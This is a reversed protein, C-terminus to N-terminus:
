IRVTSAAKGGRGCAGSLMKKKNLSAPDMGRESMESAREKALAAKRVVEVGVVAARVKLPELLLAQVGSGVGARVGSGLPARDPTVLKFRVRLLPEAVALPAHAQAFYVRGRRVQRAQFLPAGVRQARRQRRVGVRLVM